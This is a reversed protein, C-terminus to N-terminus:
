GGIKVMPFQCRKMVAGLSGHHLPKNQLAEDLKKELEWDGAGSRLLPKLDTLEEAFLCTKLKGDATLRLRNCSRCFHDSVPSIFGIEGAAGPFKFLRAPGEHGNAGKELPILPSITELRTKIEQCSICREPKWENSLGIPMYEIFRVQFPERLTLRAFDEIELDNFGAIAVVNIKIPSLGLRRAAAIGEWVRNLDGGRTIERYRQPDLSDMSINLRKLGAQFLEWAFDRLLLANTTMSLDQIGKLRSIERVLHVVGKRVLPEGGTIRVKNIGRKVALAALRLIEEYSLIESHGFQSVGEKPMCYRCRLNCRDTISIRLYNIRRNHIDILGNM